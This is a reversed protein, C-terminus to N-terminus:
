KNTNNIEVHPNDLIDRIFRDNMLQRHEFEEMDM